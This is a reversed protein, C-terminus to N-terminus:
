LAATIYWLLISEYYNNAADLMLPADTGKLALHVFVNLRAIAESLTYTNADAKVADIIKDAYKSQMINRLETAKEDWMIALPNPRVPPVPINFREQLREVNACVDALLM